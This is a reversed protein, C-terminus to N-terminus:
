PKVGNKKWAGRLAEWVIDPVEGEPLYRISTQMERMMFRLDARVSEARRCFGVNSWNVRQGRKRKPM